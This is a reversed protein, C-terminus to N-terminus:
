KRSLKKIQQMLFNTVATRERSNLLFFYSVAIYLLAFAAFSVIFRPLLPDICGALYNIPFYVLLFVLSIRFVVEVLYDKAKYGILEELLYARIVVTVMAIVISAIVSSEPSAGLKLLVYVVPLNLIMLGGTIIEFKKIRGTALASAIAPVDVSQIVENLLILQTFLVTYAPVDALWLGLLFEANIIVPIACLAVLFFGIKSSEAILRYMQPLENNSYAKYIQPKVAILFNQTLSNVAGSVQMSIARAGNVAPGFFMNLLVNVGQGRVIISTSGLLHWGSYSSIEKIEKARWLFRYRSEPFRRCYLYYCFTIVGTSLMMLAAYLILRDSTSILLMYVILLKLLVEAISILAYASMREHSVILANYPVSICSLVFAGVSLQYTWFMADERGEPVVIYNSVFWLGITEAFALVVIIFLLFITVNICFLESLRKHNGRGIEYSFYRQCTSSLTSNLFSLMSVVGGVINYIGYDVVGLSQLVVRSTYLSVLMVLIMRVYLMGTNKIIRKNNVSSEAM